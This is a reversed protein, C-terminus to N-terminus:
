ISVEGLGNAERTGMDAGSEPTVEPPAWHQQPCSMGGRLRGRGVHGPAVLPRIQHRAAGPSGPERAGPRGPAGASREPSSRRPLVSGEALELAPGQARRM